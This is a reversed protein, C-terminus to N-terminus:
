RGAMGTISIGDVLYRQLAIVLVVGPIMSIVCGAMQQNFYTTHIYSSLLYPCGSFEHRMTCLKDHAAAEM